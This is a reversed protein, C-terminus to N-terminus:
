RPVQCLCSAAIKVDADEWAKQFRTAVADATKNQMRLARELGFLSWGDEPYRVLDERYATELSM